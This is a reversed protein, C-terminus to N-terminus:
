KFVSEVTEIDKIVNQFCLILPALKESCTEKQLAEAKELLHQMGAKYANRGDKDFHVTLYCPFGAGIGFLPELFFEGPMAADKDISSWIFLNEIGDSYQETLMRNRKPNWSAFFLDEAESFLVKLKERHTCSLEEYLSDVTETLVENLSWQPNQLFLGNFLITLEAAPNNLPSLFMECSRGGAQYLRWLAAYNAKFHPIFWRLRDWRQPPYIWFGGSTGFSCRMRSIVRERDTDRVFEGHSGVDIFVDVM